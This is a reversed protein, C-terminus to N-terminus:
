ISTWIFYSSIDHIAACVPTVASDPLLPRTQAGHDAFVGFSTNETCLLVIFVYALFTEAAFPLGVMGGRRHIKLANLTSGDGRQPWMIEAVMIQSAYGQSPIVTINLRLTSAKASADTPKQAM